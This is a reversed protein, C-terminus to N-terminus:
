KPKCQAPTAGGATGIFIQNVYCPTICFDGTKQWMKGGKPNGPDNKGICADGSQYCQNFPPLPGGVLQNPWNIKGVYWMDLPNMSITPIKIALAGQLYISVTALSKGYGHDNWYHVGVSYAVNDEPQIMNLNEPGAGDTDELDFTPDDQVAPNASGWQPTPNYWFADFPNNFWPDGTGDCDIDLGSGLPHAFHLDMDAGAAPGSDFQNADGPTDWLLEVHIANDPTVQVTKCPQVCSKVDNNDWVDLCFTYTGVTNAQITPNASTDGPVLPQGSGAPQKATWKYKKIVSGYQAKSALGNLHLLTQPIVVEAEKVSIVAAPCTDAIGAGQITLQPKSPANTSIELVAVDPLPDSAPNNPDSPPSIDTPSYVIDFNAIGNIPITCPVAKTPGKKPDVKDCKMLPDAIMKSFDLTFEGTTNGSVFSIGNVVLNVGGTSEIQVEHTVVSGSKIGGFSLGPSPVLKVSPVDALIEVKTSIVPDNALFVVIGQKHKDDTRTFTLCFNHAQGPLIEVGSSLVNALSFSGSGKEVKATPNATNNEGCNDQQITFQPDVQFSIASIKLKANGVNAVNIPLSQTLMTANYPFNVVPLASFKALGVVCKGNVAWCDGASKCGAIAQCDADTAAICKGANATCLGASACGQAKKCDANSGAVCGGDKATCNGLTACETSQKCDITGTAICEGGEATCKGKQKCVDSPQCNADVAAVCVGNQATCHGQAKCGPSQNCDGDSGAICKGGMAACYGMSKCDQAQICDANTGAVCKGGAATCFGHAKCQTSQKCDSDNGAFCGGDKATCLGFTTCCPCTPDNPATCSGGDLADGSGSQDGAGDNGTPTVDAAGGVADSLKATGGGGGGGAGSGCGILTVMFSCLWLIKLNM